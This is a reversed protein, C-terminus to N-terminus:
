FKLRHKNGEMDGMPKGISKLNPKSQCTADSYWLSAFSFSFFGRHARNKMPLCCSLMCCMSSRLVVYREAMKLM